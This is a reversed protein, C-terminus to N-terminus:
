KEGNLLNTDDPHIAGVRSRWIKSLTDYDKQSLMSKSVLALCALNASEWVSDWAKDNFYNTFDPRLKSWMKELQTYNKGDLSTLVNKLAEDFKKTSSLSNYAKFIELAKEEDVGRLDNYIHNVKGLEANPLLAKTPHQYLPKDPVVKAVRGGGLVTPAKTPAVKGALSVSGALRKGDKSRVALTKKNSM